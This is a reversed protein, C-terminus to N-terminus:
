GRLVELATERDFREDCDDNQCTYGEEGLNVVGTHGCPTLSPKPVHQDIWNDVAETVKWVGVYGDGCDEPQEGVKRVGSHNRLKGHTRDDM